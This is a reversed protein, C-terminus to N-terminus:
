FVLAICEGATSMEYENDYDYDYDYDYGDDDDGGGGGGDDDDDDGDDDDDDLQYWLKHMTAGQKNHNDKSRVSDLGDAQLPLCPWPFSRGTSLAESGPDDGLPICSVNSAVLFFIM